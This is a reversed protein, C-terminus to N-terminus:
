EVRNLSRQEIWIVQLEVFLSCPSTRSYRTECEADKWHTKHEKFNTTKRSKRQVGRWVCVSFCSLERISPPSIQFRAYHIPPRHTHTSHKHSSIPFFFWFLCFLIKKKEKRPLFEVCVTVPWIALQRSLIRLRVIPASTASELNEKREVIWEIDRENEEYETDKREEGRSLTLISIYLFLLFSSRSARRDRHVNEPQVFCVVRRRAYACGGGHM